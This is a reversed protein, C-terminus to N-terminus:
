KSAELPEQHSFERIVHLFRTPLATARNCTHPKSTVAFPRRRSRIGGARASARETPRDSESVSYSVSPSVSQSVPAVSSSHIKRFANEPSPQKSNKPLCRLCITFPLISSGVCPRPVLFPFFCCSNSWEANWCCPSNNEESPPRCCVVASLLVPYDEGLSHSSSLSRQKGGVCIHLLKPSVVLAFWASRSREVRQKSLPASEETWKDAKAPRLSTENSFLINWLTWSTM